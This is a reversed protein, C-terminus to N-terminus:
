KERRWEPRHRADLVAELGVVRPPSRTVDVARVRDAVALSSSRRSLSAVDSPQGSSVFDGIGFDPIAPNAGPAAGSDSRGEVSARGSM